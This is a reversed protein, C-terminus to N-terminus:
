PSDSLVAYNRVVKQTICKAISAFGSNVAVSAFQYKVSQHCFAEIESIKMNPKLIANDIKVSLNEYTLNMENILRLVQNSYVM